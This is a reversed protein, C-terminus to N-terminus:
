GALDKMATSGVVRTRARAVACHRDCRLSPVDDAPRVLVGASQPRGDSDAEDSRVFHPCFSRDSDHSHFEAATKPSMYLSRRDRWQLGAARWEPSATALTEGRESSLV